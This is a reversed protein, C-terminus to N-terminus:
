QAGDGLAALAEGILAKREPYVLFASKFGNLILKKIEELTFDLHECCLALEDTLTTNSMLRNDTNVTVRLGRDFYERIPHQDISSVAGTQVNSTPCMELPIRHDCVYEMLDPDERLRVGHGSHVQRRNHKGVERLESGM